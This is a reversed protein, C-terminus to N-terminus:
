IGAQELRTIRRELEMLKHDVADAKRSATLSLGLSYTMGEVLEDLRKEIGKLRELKEGHDALTTRIERLLRLTLDEPENSHAM